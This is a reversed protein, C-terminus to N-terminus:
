GPFRAPAGRGPIAGTAIRRASPPPQAGDASLRHHQHVHDRVSFGIGDDAARLRSLEGLEQAAAHLQEPPDVVQSCIGLEYARQATLREHRGVFAMRLVSEM